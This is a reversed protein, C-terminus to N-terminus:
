RSCFVPVKSRELAGRTTSGFLERIASHGFAGMVLLGAGLREVEGLVADAVPSDGAIPRPTADLDHFRLFDVARDALVAAAQRDRDAAVVHLARGRGLGTAEFAALARAAPASGDFALVVPGDDGPGPDPAMVVPRASDRLVRKLTSDGDRLWGFAFHTRRGLLLLDYRQSEALLEVHPTGTSELTECRVGEAQCLRAFRELASEVRGQAEAVLGEDVPGAYGYGEAYVTAESLEIGPLDVVGGGVLLADHRKAWRLGLNLAALSDPSGDLGIMITKLMLM